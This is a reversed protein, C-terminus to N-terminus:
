KSAFVSPISGEGPTPYVKLTLLYITHTTAVPTAVGGNYVYLYVHVYLAYTKQM